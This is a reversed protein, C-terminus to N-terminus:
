VIDRLVHPWNSSFQTDWRKPVGQRAVHVVRTDSFMENFWKQQIWWSYPRWFLVAKLLHPEKEGLDFRVCHGALSRKLKDLHGLICSNAEQTLNNVRRFSRKHWDLWSEHPKRKIKLTRRFM